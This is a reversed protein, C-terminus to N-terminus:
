NDKVNWSIGDLDIQYLHTKDQVTFSIQRNEQSTGKLLQLKILPKKEGKPFAKLTTIFLANKGKVSCICKDADVREGYNPSIWSPKLEPRLGPLFSLLLKGNGEKPEFLCTEESKLYTKGPSFQYNIQYNHEAGAKITDVIVWLSDGDYLIRRQLLPSGALSKYGSHEGAIFSWGNKEEVKELTFTDSGPHKMAQHNQGDVSITNHAPTSIVWKREKCGGKYLWRGPDAILLSGFGFIEISLLDYHGHSGGKPGCDFVFYRSLPQWGSRLFVYGSDPFIKITEKPSVGSKKIIRFEEIKKIGYVFVLKAVGSGKSGPKIDEVGSLFIFDPREFLMAEITLVGQSTRRDSDSLNAILGNPETIWKSFVGMKELRKRYGESFQIGDLEALYMTEAFWRICYNHYSSSQEVHGGDERVQINVAKELTDKAYKSWEKSKKFEPFTIAINLLGQMEMLCWNCSLHPNYSKLLKAHQYFSYLWKSFLEPTLSPSNLFLNYAWIWTDGRIAVDLRDWMTYPGTDKNKVKWGARHWCGPHVIGPNKAHKLWSNLQFVFEKAYKEDKIIQYAMGLGAWFRSRNLMMPFQPDITPNDVWSFDKPLQVRFVVGATSNPFRHRIIEDADKIINKTSNPMNKKLYSTIEPLDKQKFYFYQSKRRRFYDLLAKKAEEEKGEKTLKFVPKLGSNEKDLSSILLQFYNQNVKLPYKVNFNARGDSENWADTFMLIQSTRKIRSLKILKTGQYMSGDGYDVMPFTPGIHPNTGSRDRGFTNVGLGGYHLKSGTVSLCRWVGTNVRGWYKNAWEKVPLYGGDSLINTYFGYNGNQWRAPPLYDDHDGAYMMMAALIAIIAVTVLLEILTFSNTLPLVGLKRKCKTRM